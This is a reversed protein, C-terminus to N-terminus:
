PIPAVVGGSGPGRPDGAAEVTQDGLRRVANVSASRNWIEIDHGLRVLAERTEPGLADAEAALRDPLWQHHLRPRNVAAQLPDNDVLLHLLVQVTATPIRSGGRGGVALSEGGRWAVTPSMSSLMRKGPGVANAEGQILGFLNPRGPAVAFDDMENNLFFGLEPVLAKCGFELNLTTTLAVLNGAADIVSLHTTDTGESRAGAPLRAVEASPTAADRDITARRADLWAASLLTGSDVESSAPDGLLYRDAYARRLVEALLHARAAGFRPLRQWDLRELQTLTQGLIIGGSSPLDMSAFDWGFARFHVPRRWVARYADLDSAKLVGGYRDSLREIAAAAPGRTLAQPGQEAYRQLTEALRPLRMRGGRDPPRGDPLWVRASEPFRRLEEQAGTLSRHLRGTVVFGDAALRRAPAVVASWPLAGYRRHLEWLGVPSGPVGAALPGILSAEPRPRGEGDLFMEPSAAAPATERFDLSDLRDGLKVVAFGGGGLNGAEPHVVALALATAVAADVANGGDRLIELGAQTAEVEDSAVAGGEGHAAPLSAAAAPLGALLAALLALLPPSPRWGGVRRRERRLRQILAALM